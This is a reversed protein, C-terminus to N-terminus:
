SCAGIAKVGDENDIPLNNRDADIEEGEFLLISLM